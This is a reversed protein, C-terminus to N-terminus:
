PAPYTVFTEVYGQVKRLDTVDEVNAGSIWPWSVVLRAHIPANGSAPVRTYLVTAQFPPIFGASVAAPTHDQGIGTTCAAPLPAGPTTVPALSHALSKRGTTTISYPLPLGYALSCGPRTTNLRPDTNRLDSALLSLISAAHLEQNSQRISAIGIPLLAMVSILAFAVIGLAVVLEVLSFGGARAAGRTRWLTRM